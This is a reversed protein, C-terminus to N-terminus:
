ETKNYDGLYVYEDKPHYKTLTQSIRTVSVWFGGVKKWVKQNDLSANRAYRTIRQANAFFRGIRKRAYAYYIPRHLYAPFDFLHFEKVRILMSEDLLNPSPSEILPEPEGADIYPPLDPTFQPTLPECILKPLAPHGAKWFPNVYPTTEPAVRCSRNPLKRKPKEDQAPTSIPGDWEIKLGTNSKGRKTNFM